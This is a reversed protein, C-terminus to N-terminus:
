KVLKIFASYVFHSSEYVKYIEKKTLSKKTRSILRFHRCSYIVIWFIQKFYITILKIKLFLYFALRISRSRGRQILKDLSKGQSDSPRKLRKNSGLNRTCKGNKLKQLKILEIKIRSEKMSPSQYEEIISTTEM